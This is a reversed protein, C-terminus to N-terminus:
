NEDDEGGEQILKKQAGSMDAPIYNELVRYEKLGAPPLNINERWEDGSVFGRDSGALLIDSITKPDYNLLSRSNFQFYLNPSVLLARTLEQQISQAIARIRSQIWNNYEERDFEGVGLLFAPVGVVAAVTKKDLTVTDNVALDALSLPKVSQVEMMEAPIVWPKGAEDNELYAKVIEARGEKTEMTGATSDVRVILSPKWKSAMFAKETARAQKLNDAIERLNVTVGQGKWPYVPDPNYVFHLLGGPDRPAGDILVQYDRYSNGVPLFAVRCASVPEISQLLGRFTHPICICNGRGYLLMTMVITTMWNSRTMHGCPAIDVVRSLANKIRRDGDESSEMLHITMSGVLEAVRLCATQIEPNDSLRTYGAPLIDDGGLWLGLPTKQTAPADRQGNSRKKRRGM